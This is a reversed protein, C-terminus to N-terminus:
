FSYTMGVLFTRKQGYQPAEVGLGSGNRLQYNEDFVNLVDFRVAVANKDTGSPYFVHQYGVNVPYHEPETGTNAFGTRLGSGFLVDVYAMDNHTFQYSAGASAEFESEHDLHIDHDSIFAFEDPDFQFQQSNIDKAATEVWSFNGFISLNDVKYTTSTDIGYVHAERYNYPSLIVADGFQGLDVLDHARKYFGDVTVQWPETIQRSVGLDFFNSREVRPADDQTIAAANTTGDFKALTGPSVYQLPPPVFYRAYGVHATTLADIKYVMNVRPSLQSAQNFNSDFDDFRAGYNLTLQSTLKWEDQAYVGASTGHNKSDDDIGIPIDSTQAGSGDVDFVDTRTNLREAEYSAILGSRITHSDNLVYSNDLQVGNSFFSNFVDGAVGQFILDRNTDPTFQIQGYRSFLSLQTSYQDVTKQYSVVTYYQQENQNENVRASDASPVNALTFAQPLGPTNPIEFDQNSANALISLRSTDDIRYSFYGFAHTQETDDHIPREASTPAEIGISNELYTGSVFYDWKGAVGGTSFSPSVTHFTGGELSLESGRLTDGAKTTVDFIGATRFGFQAPLSGDILTVSQIVHSDLEQGFGNLGEPLLVGNVRYTLNGHDGRVHEQGYSDQVVGPARLLIQQFPANEGQPTDAIQDPGITYTVGGLSPAIQDRAQDLDSTVVVTGLRGAPQTAAPAPVGAVRGTSPMTSPTTPQSTAPPPAVARPADALAPPAAPTEILPAAPIADSSPLTAPIPLTAAGEGPPASSSTSSQAFVTGSCALLAAAWMTHRAYM